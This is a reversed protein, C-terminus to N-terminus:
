LFHESLGPSLCSHEQEAIFFIRWVTDFCIPNCPHIFHPLPSCREWSIVLFISSITVSLYSPFSFISSSSFSFLSSSSLSSSFFLPSFFFSSSFNLFKCLFLFCPSSLSINLLALSHPFSPQFQFLLFSSSHSSFSLSSFQIIPFLVSSRFHFSFFFLFTFCCCSFLLSIDLFISSIMVFTYNPHLSSSFLSSSSFSIFLAVSSLNLHLSALSHPFSSQFLLFSFSNSSVSSSIQLVPFVNCVFPFHLLFYFLFPFM